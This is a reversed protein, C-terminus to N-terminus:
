NSLHVPTVSLVMSLIATAKSTFGLSRILYCMIISSDIMSSIRCALTSSSVSFSFCRIPYRNTLISSSFRMFFCKHFWGVCRATCPPHFAKSKKYRYGTHHGVMYYVKHCLLIRHIWRCVGASSTHGTRNLCFCGLGDIDRNPTTTLGSRWPIPTM